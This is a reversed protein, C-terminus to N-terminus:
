LNTWARNKASIAVAELIQQIHYGQWLNPAGSENKNISNLFHSLSAVHARIWGAQSKPSPFDSDPSEFRAGCAIKLWGSDGGFPRDGKTADFFELYHSDMLSFRLAGKEGHIELRLEDECGTALKTAEIVGTIMKANQPSHRTLVVVSDESKVEKEIDSGNPDRSPMKRTPWAICSDACVQSPTGILYDILDVLHSVLDRIVGGSASHKWKYPVLPSSNSSHYYGIRYQFLRGLRGEELIQKARRIAPIFRLHFTMQSTKNYNNKQLANRVLEAESFSAVMPKDCYIYKKYEIASLLPVLHRDNPTCIHVIDINPNETVTRYDTASEPCGIQNKARIATEEHETVVRVINGKIELDPAYWPIAAHAFAHVKGIMGFGIIGVNMRKM